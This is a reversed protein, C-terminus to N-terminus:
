RVMSGAPVEQNLHFVVPQEADAMIMMGQSEEPGMKRPALNILFPFQKGVFTEPQYWQKIGSFITRSGIEEGFDVTFKLLKQSWEPAEATVITGIRIDLAEFQSYDITPKM